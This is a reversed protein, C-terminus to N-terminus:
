KRLGLSPNDMTRVTDSTKPLRVRESRAQHESPQYASVRQSAGTDGTASTVRAAVAHVM